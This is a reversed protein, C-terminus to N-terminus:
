NLTAPGIPYLNTGDFYFSQVVIANAASLQGTGDIQVPNIVNAPWAFARGGTPDQVIKFTVIQSASMGLLTSSSVSGTLTIVFGSAPGQFVPTASFPVTVQGLLYSLSPGGQQAIMTGVDVTSGAPQTFFWLVTNTLRAGNADYVTVLYQIQPTLEVGSYIQCKGSLVGNVIPFSIPIANVVQGPSAVVAADATPQLTLTGRALLNGSADQFNGNILNIM